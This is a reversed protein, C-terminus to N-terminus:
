KIILYSYTLIHINSYIFIKLVVQTLNKYFNIGENLNKKLEIYADYAAALEKLFNERHMSALCNNKEKCFEM